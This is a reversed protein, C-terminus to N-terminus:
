TQCNKHSFFKKRLWFIPLSVNRYKNRFNDLKEKGMSTKSVGPNLKMIKYPYGSKGSGDAISDRDGMLNECLCPDTELSEVRNRQDIQRDKGWYWMFNILTVICYINVGPLPLKGLRSKKLIM